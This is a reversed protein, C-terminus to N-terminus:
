AQGGRETERAIRRADTSYAQRVRHEFEEAWAGRETSIVQDWTDWGIASAVKRMLPLTPQRKGRRLLSAGSDTYGLLNGVWGNTPVKLTETKDAM